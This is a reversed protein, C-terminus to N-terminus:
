LNSSALKVDIKATGVETADSFVDVGLAANLATAAETTLTLSLDLATVKKNKPVIVPVGSFVTGEINFVDVRGQSVGNVVVIATIKAVPDVAGSESLEIIPDLITATKYETPAKPASPAILPPVIEKALTIGGSHIIETRANGLDIAGGSAVFTLAGKGPNIRAPQAKKFIVDATDLGTAVADNLTIVTTGTKIDATVREADGALAPLTLAATLILTSLHKIM